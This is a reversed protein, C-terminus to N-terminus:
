MYQPKAVTREGLTATYGESYKNECLRVLFSTKGVGCNGIFLVKYTKDPTVDPDKVFDVQTLFAVGSNNNYVFLLTCLIHTKNPVMPHPLPLPMM